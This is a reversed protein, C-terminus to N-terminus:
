RKEKSIILLFNKFIEFVKQSEARTENNRLVEARSGEGVEKRRTTNM